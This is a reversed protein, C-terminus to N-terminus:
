ARAIQPKRPEGGVEARELMWWAVDARSIAMTAGFHDVERVQRTLPGNTLTVPRPCCWDLGSEEFVQEMLALDRYAVGISSTRVLGRMVANMRPASDGVGAASVAVVRAVGARKMAAAIRAGASSCFDAPSTLKSWPNATKRRIGLSSVVADVGAFVPDLAGDELVEGRVIRLGERPALASGERVLAVVAHGREIAQSVLQQGVGGSGGLVALRM